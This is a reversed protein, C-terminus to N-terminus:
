PKEETAQNIEKLVQRGFYTHGFATMLEKRLSQAAKTQKLENMTEMSHYLGAGALEPSETGYLVPLYLLRLMGEERQEPIVSGVGAQGLWYLAIAQNSKSYSRWSGKLRGIVAAHKGDLIDLQSLVVQQLQAVGKNRSAMQSLLEHRLFEEAIARDGAAMALTGYYIFAAAPPTGPLARVVAQVKPLNAKAIKSDFWVPPIDATMGTEPDWNLRREGPLQVPSKGLSQLYIYCQFYPELAEARLGKALRAWMLGQLVMYATKSRRNVYTPYLGEVHQLLDLYDGTELRSRVRFLKLGLSGRFKDFEAQKGGTLRGTDVEDWGVVRGKFHVGDVDIKIVLEEIANGNRLVIEDARGGWAPGCVLMLFVSAIKWTRIRIPRGGRQMM